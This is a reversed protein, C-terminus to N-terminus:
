EWPVTLSITGYITVAEFNITMKRNEYIAVLSTISSVGQTSIIIARARTEIEFQDFNKEFDSFNLWGIRPDLIWEGLATRLRSQVQQVVFRGDTVRSVGGGEALIMDGTSKDLALHISM